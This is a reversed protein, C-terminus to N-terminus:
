TKVVLCQNGCLEIVPEIKDSFFESFAARAGDALAYDHSVIVGGSSMRPYFFILADLTSRYLDADLHVFSFRRDIVASATGPFMGKYFHVNPSDLYAKVSELGATFQGGHFRGDLNGPQPLGEFTDFLHLPKEKGAAAHILKASGGKYVGLEAIDGLTKQTAEAARLLQFAELPTLLTNGERKLKLISRIAPKRLPTRFNMIGFRLYALLDQAAHQARSLPTVDM